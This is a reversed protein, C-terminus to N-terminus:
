YSTVFKRRLLLYLTNAQAMDGPTDEIYRYSYDADGIWDKTLGKSYLIDLTTDFSEADTEFDRAQVADLNIQFEADRTLARTFNVRMRTNLRESDQENLSSVDRSLAFEFESRVYTRFTSLSGTMVTEGQPLHMAGIQATVPGIPFELTRGASLGYRQGNPTDVLTAETSVAGLPRDLSFGATATVTESPDPSTGDEFASYSLEADLQMAPSIDLRTSAGVTRRSNDALSNGNLGSANGSTYITQNGRAYISFAAMADRGWDLEVTARSTQRTATGNVFDTLGDADRVTFKEEGLDMQRFNGTLELGANASHTEFRTEVRPSTLGVDPSSTGYRIDTAGELGFSSTPTQTLLGFSPTFRADITSEGGDSRPGENDTGVLGFATGFTLQIGGTEYSQAHGALPLAALWATLWAGRLAARPPLMVTM